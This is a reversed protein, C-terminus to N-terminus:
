PKYHWRRLLLRGIKRHSQLWHHLSEVLDIRVVQLAYQYALFLLYAKVLVLPCHLIQLPLEAHSGLIGMKKDGVTQCLDNNKRAQRYGNLSMLKNISKVFFGIFLLLPRVIDAAEEMKLLTAMTHWTYIGNSKDYTVVKNQLVHIVDIGRHHKNVPPNINQRTVRGFLSGM